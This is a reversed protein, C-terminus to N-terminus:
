RDAGPLTTYAICWDGLYTPPVELYFVGETVNKDIEIQNTPEEAFSVNTPLVGFVLLMGALMCTILKMWFPKYM